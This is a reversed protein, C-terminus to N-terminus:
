ALSPYLARATCERCLVAPPTLGFRTDRVTFLPRDCTACRLRKISQLAQLARM